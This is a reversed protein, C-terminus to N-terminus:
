SSVSEIKIFCISGDDFSQWVGFLTVCDIESGKVTVKSLGKVLEV